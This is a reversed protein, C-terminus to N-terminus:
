KKKKKDRKYSKKRLDSARVKKKTKPKHRPPVSKIETHKPPIEKEFGDDSEGTFNYKRGGIRYKMKQKKIKKIANKVLSRKKILIILYCFILGIIIGLFIVMIILEGSM